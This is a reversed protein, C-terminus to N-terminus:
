KLGARGVVDAFRPDGRLSDFHPDINLMIVAWERREVAKNLHEFAQDKEGLLACWRATDFLLSGSKRDGLKDFELQKRRVGLWGGTEYATQYAAVRDPNTRKQSRIFTEYAGAYDGKMEHSYTLWGYATGFNADLDIVRRLQAIAEDYRRAYYLIRGRDRQYMLAGPDIVLATEIEAMAQDFRGRYSSLLAYLWHAADNNPELEIARLLDAEVRPFDWDRKLTLDARAVYAEALDSDLALAKNINEEVRENEVSTNGGSFLSPPYARAMGAYALAYNPDLRVAQEFYEVAKKSDAANRRMALHKGQLYLRHAEENTTGRKVTQGGSTGAFRAVLRGGVENAVADQMGFLDGVERESKYTDEVQGSAVNFLQATVRIRGGILQYNSALVYDVQQERGAAVPDQALDVYVRTASLPRVVFGRTSSLRHILSDAIGFEYVEDRSAVGIPKLPLVAISRKGGAAPGTKGRNVAFYTLGIAGALLVLSAVAAFTRHQKIGGVMYEASTAAARGAVRGTLAAPGRPTRGGERGDGGAAFERGRAGRQIGRGRRAEVELEEKLNKLDRALEGATQYRGAKEKCLAKAVIRELEAPGEVFHSLPPPEDEMISVVVHNPTKGEFPTRGALMEHLVVGLSWLDTREDVELGGAQEPSMYGVTGMVLGPNTRVSPAAAARRGAAPAPEPALKALGFDLVKVFGDPRLMVNEPKVDRHVVGEAHAASLAEAAQAAVGLAEAVPLPGRALRERLTEGRVFESAIFHRGEAAGVDFVTVINPHDLKLVAEAEQRFRRVRGEDRVLHPPLLKLAVRRGLRTDDALYVDGMGGSALPREIRYHGVMQGAALVDHEGALLAAAVDAAPAEIFGDSQEHSALLSEVEERLSEDGGCERALFAAREAPGSELAAHFLQDIREWREPTM